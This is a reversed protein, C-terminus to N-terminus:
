EERYGHVNFYALLRYYRDLLKQNGSAKHHMLEETVWKYAQAAIEEAHPLDRLISPSLVHLMLRDDGPGHCLLDECGAAIASAMMGIREPGRQSRLYSLYGQLGEGILARPYEALSAELSYARALAPGYVENPYIDIAREVEIGARLPIRSAMAVLFMGALGYLAVWVGIAPTAAGFTGEILPVSVVFSDSFGLQSVNPTRIAEYEQLQAATLGATTVRNRAALAFYESFTERVVKVRGATKKLIDLASARAEPVHPLQTLRELEQRQGLIDVFAVLHYGYRLMAETVSNM